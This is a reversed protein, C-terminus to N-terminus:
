IAPGDSAAPLLGRHVGQECKFTDLIKVVRVAGQSHTIRARQIILLKYRVIKDPVIRADKGSGGNSRHKVEPIFNRAAAEM